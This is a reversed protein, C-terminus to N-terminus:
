PTKLERVLAAAKAGSLVDFTEFKGAIMEIIRNMGDDLQADLQEVMDTLMREIESRAGKRLENKDLVNGDVAAAYKDAFNLLADVIPAVIDGTPIM